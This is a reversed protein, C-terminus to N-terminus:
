IINIILLNIFKKRRRWDIEEKKVVVIVVGCHVLFPFFLAIIRIHTHCTPLLIANIKCNHLLQAFIAYINCDNCLYQLLQMLTANCYYQLSLITVVSEWFIASKKM